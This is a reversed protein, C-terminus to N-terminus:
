QKFIYIKLSHAFVSYLFIYLFFLPFSFFSISFSLFPLLPIFFSFPHPHGSIRISFFRNITERKVIKEERKTERKIEKEKLTKESKKPTMFEWQFNWQSIKGREREREWHTTLWHRNVEHPISSSPSLFLIYLSFSSVAKKRGWM